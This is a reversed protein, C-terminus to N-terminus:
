VSPIRFSSGGFVFEVKVERFVLALVVGLSFTFGRVVGLEELLFSFM